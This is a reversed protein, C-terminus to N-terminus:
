KIRNKTKGSLRNFNERNQKIKVNDVCEVQSQQRAVEAQGQVKSLEKERDALQGQLQQLQEWLASSQTKEQQM